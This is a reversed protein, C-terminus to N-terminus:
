SSRSLLCNNCWVDSCTVMDIINTQNRVCMGSSKQDITQINTAQLSSDVAEQAGAGRAPETTLGCDPHSTHHPSQEEGARRGMGDAGREERAKQQLDMSWEILGAYLTVCFLHFFSLYKKQSKKWDNAQSTVFQIQAVM